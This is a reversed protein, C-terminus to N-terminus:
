DAEILVGQTGPAVESLTGTTRYGTRWTLSYPLPLLGRVEFTGDKRVRVSVDHRCGRADAEVRVRTGEAPRRAVRGTIVAGERLPVRYPGEGPRVRPLYAVLHGEGTAYLAGLEDLPTHITFAGNDEATSRREGRDNPRVFHVEVEGSAGEVQGRLEHFPELPLRLSRNPATVEIRHSERRPTGWTRAHIRYTGLEVPGLLTTEDPGFNGNARENGELDNLTIRGRGDYGDQSTVTCEIFGGKTLTVRVDTHGSEVTTAPTLYPWTARQWGPPRDVTIKVPKDGVGELAFRGQADALTKRSRRSWKGQVQAWAAPQGSPLLVTGTIRKGRRLQFTVSGADTTVHQEKPSEFIPPPTAWVRVQGTPVGIFRFTGQADTLAQFIDNDFYWDSIEKSKAFM